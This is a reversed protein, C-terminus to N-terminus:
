KREIWAYAKENLAGAHLMEDKRCWKKGANKIRSALRKATDDEEPEMMVALGDQRMKEFIPGWFPAVPSKPEITKPDVFTIKM